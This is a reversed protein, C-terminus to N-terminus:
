RRGQDIYDSVTWGQPDPKVRRQIDLIRSVARQVKAPSSQTSAIRRLWDELSLGEAAARARLAEAQDDSLEITVSM